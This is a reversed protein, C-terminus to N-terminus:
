SLTARLRSGVRILRFAPSRVKKTAMTRNQGPRTRDMRNTIRFITTHQCRIPTQIQERKLDRFHTTREVISRSKRYRM